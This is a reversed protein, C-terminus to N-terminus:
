NIHELWSELYTGEGPIKKLSINSNNTSLHQWRYWAHSSHFDGWLVKMPFDVNEISHDPMAPNLLVVEPFDKFDIKNIQEGVCVIADCTKQQDTIDDALFFAIEPNKEVYGRLRHGLVKGLIAKDSGVIAIKKAAGSEGVMMVEGDYHLPAQKPLFLTCALLASYGLMTVVPIGLMMKKNLGRKFWLRDILVCLLCLLPFPWMWPHHAVSSFSAAVFFTLWVAFVIAWWSRGAQPFTVVLVIVWGLCYLLRKGTGWEVLWTFHSNVLNLYTEGRGEPQYWQQFAEPANGEGWGQPADLLMQPVAQYILWRNSLSRDESGDIGQTYRDSVGLSSSYAWLGVVTVFVSVWRQWGWQPRLVLVAALGGVLAAVLGGRSVTQFLFVGCLVTVPLMIWFLRKWVLCASWSAVTLMAIFAATKNPNGFGWDLRQIGEFYYDM